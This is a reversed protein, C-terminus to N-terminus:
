RESRANLIDAVADADSLGSARELAWFTTDKAEEAKERRHKASAHHVAANLAAESAEAVREQRDHLVKTAADEATQSWQYRDLNLLVGGAVGESREALLASLRADASALEKESEARQSQAASLHAASMTERLAQIRLLVSRKKLVHVLETM